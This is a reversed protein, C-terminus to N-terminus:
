FSVPKQGPPLPDAFFGTLHGLAKPAPDSKLFKIFLYIIVITKMNATLSKKPNWLASGERSPTTVSQNKLFFYTIAQNKSSHFQVGHPDTIQGGAAM